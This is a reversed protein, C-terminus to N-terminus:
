PSTAVPPRHILFWLLAGAALLVLLTAAIIAIM